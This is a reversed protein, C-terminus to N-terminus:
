TAKEPQAGRAVPESRNQLLDRRLWAQALAWGRKVSAPSIHLAEATEKVSLGAFFRCEVISCHRESEAQLRQLSQAFELITDEDLDDMQPSGGLLEEVQEVNVHKARGGRKARGKYRAYDVLIQRMARSAIALLHARNAFALHEQEVLKLYAEHVLATTGLTEAGSWGRRHRQAIGKLEQYVLPFLNGFASRDGEGM